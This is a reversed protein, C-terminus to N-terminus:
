RRTERWYAGFQRGIVAVLRGIAAHLQGYEALGLLLMTGTVQSLAAPSGDLVDGTHTMRNDLEIAVVTPLRDLQFAIDAM